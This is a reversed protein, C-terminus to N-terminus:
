SKARNAPLDESDSRAGPVAGDRVRAVRLTPIHLDYRRTAVRHTTGQKGEEELRSM